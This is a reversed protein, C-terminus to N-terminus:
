CGTVGLYDVSVVDREMATLQEYRASGVPRSAEIRGDGWREGRLAWRRLEPVFVDDIVQQTIDGCAFEPMAEQKYALDIIQQAPPYQESIVLQLHPRIAQM